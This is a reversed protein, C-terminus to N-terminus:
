IISASGQQAYSNGTRSREAFQPVAARLVTLFALPMVGGTSHAMTTYLDRLSRAIPNPERSRDSRQFDSASALNCSIVYESLAAQLEPVARLVQVTASM